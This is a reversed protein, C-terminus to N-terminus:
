RGNNSSALNTKELYVFRAQSGESLILVFLSAFSKLQPAVWLLKERGNEYAITQHARDIRM